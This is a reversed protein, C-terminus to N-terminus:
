GAMSRCDGGYLVNAESPVSVNVAVRDLCKCNKAYWWFFAPPSATQFVLQPLSAEQQHGALHGRSQGPPHPGGSRGARGTDAHELMCPTFLFSLCPFGYPFCIVKLKRFDGRAQALQLVGRNTNLFLAKTPTYEEEPSLEAEKEVDAAEVDLPNAPVLATYERPVERRPRIPVGM